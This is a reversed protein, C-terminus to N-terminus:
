MPEIRNEAIPEVYDPLGAYNTEAHVLPGPKVICYLGKQAILGIFKIIDANPVTEGKFDYEGPFRSHHRWPAYLTVTNVGMEKLLDLKESWIHRSDRYYPYDASLLIFPVGDKYFVGNKICIQKKEKVGM